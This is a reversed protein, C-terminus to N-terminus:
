DRPRIGEFVMRKSAFEGRRCRAEKARPLAEEAIL